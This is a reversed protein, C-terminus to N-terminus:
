RARRRRGLALAVVGLLLISAMPAPQDAGARCGCGDGGGPPTVPPGPPDVPSGGADDPPGPPGGADPAPGPPGADPPAPLESALLRARARRADNPAGAVFRTYAVLVQGNQGAALFPREESEPEASITFKRLVQGNTGIEAAFLDVSTADGAVTREPWALVFSRGDFVLSAGIPSEPPREVLLRPEPDLVQGDPTVRTGFISDSDESIVLYNGGGFSVRTRLMFSAGGSIVFSEGILKGGTDVRQGFVDQQDHWVVLYANGDFAASPARASPGSQPELIHTLDGPVLNQDIVVVSLRDFATHYDHGIQLTRTGDSASAMAIDTAHLLPPPPETDLLEGAPSVRVTNFPAGDGEGGSDHVWTVVYNAGDFVVDALDVVHPTIELPEPDLPTGDAAVRAGYLAQGDEDGDITDTWLVLFNQGDSAVAQVSQHSAASAPMVAGGTVPSGTADLRAGLIVQDKGFPNDGDSWLLLAGGTHVALTAELGGTFRHAPHTTVAGTAAVRAVKISEASPGGEGGYDMSWVVAVRAGDRAVEVRHVDSAEISEEAVVLPDPDLVTGQPTVRAAMIRYLPYGEEDDDYRNWAIVHNSGDFGAVPGIDTSSGAGYSNVLFPTTDLITGDRAIRAGVITGASSWTLLANAGDFSVSVLGGGQAFARAGGPDLVTGDPTVRARYIGDNPDPTDRRQSWAVLFQEGDFILSPRRPRSDPLALAFGGADLVEGAASVRVGLLAGDVETVVLFVGGGAAVAPQYERLSPSTSVADLIPFGAPDLSSGDTAVRAGYIIPRGTRLDEWVVLYQSGDFAAAPWRGPVAAQAAGAVPIEASVAAAGVPVHASGTRDAEDEHSCGAAALLLGPLLGGLAGFLRQEYPVRRSSVRM